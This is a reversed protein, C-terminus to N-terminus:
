NVTVCTENLHGIIEGFDLVHRENESIDLVHHFMKRAVEDFYSKENACEQRECDLEKERERIKRAKKVELDNQEKRQRAKEMINKNENQKGRAIYSIGAFGLRNQENTETERTVLGKEHEEKELEFAKKSSMHKIKPWGHNYGKPKPDPLIFEDNVVFILALIKATPYFGGYEHTHAQAQPNCERLASLYNYRGCIHKLDTQLCESAQHIVPLYTSCINMIGDVLSFWLDIRQLTKDGIHLTGSTGHNTENVADCFVQSNHILLEFLLDFPQFRKLGQCYKARLELPIHTNIFDLYKEPVPTEESKKKRYRDIIDDYEIVRFLKLGEPIVKEHFHRFSHLLDRLARKQQEQESNTLQWKEIDDGEGYSNRLSELRLGEFLLIQTVLVATQTLFFRFVDLGNFLLEKYPNTM